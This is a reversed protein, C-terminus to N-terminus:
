RRLPSLIDEIALAAALLAADGGRAGMLMLGVPPEGPAECPITIACRDLYNGITTNRLIRMNAAAYRADDVELEALIPPVCPVTPSIVATFPRTLADMEAILARRAGALEVYDAGTIAEGRRMRRAVRPDYERERRMLLDRHYAWAEAAAFGGNATLKAVRAVPELAADVVRCGATSIRGIAREFASAVAPDLEELM